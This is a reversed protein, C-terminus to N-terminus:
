HGSDFEDLQAAKVIRIESSSEETRALIFGNRVYVSFLKNKRYLQKSRALLYKNFDTLHENIYIPRIESNSALGTNSESSEGTSNIPKTIISTNLNRVKRSAVLIKDRIGKDVLSVIIPKPLGSATSKTKRRYASRVINPTEFGLNTIIKSVIEKTDESETELIGAIEM